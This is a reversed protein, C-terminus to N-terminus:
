VYGCYTYTAVYKLAPSYQYNGNIRFTGELSNLFAHHREM